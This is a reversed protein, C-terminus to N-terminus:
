IILTVNKYLAFHFIETYISRLRKLYSTAESIQSFRLHYIAFAIHYVAAGHSIRDSRAPTIHYGSGFAGALAYWASLM